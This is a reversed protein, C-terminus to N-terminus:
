RETIAIEQTRAKEVTVQTNMKTCEATDKGRQAAKLKAKM